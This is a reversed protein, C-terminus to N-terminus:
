ANQGKLADALAAIEEIAAALDEAGQAQEASATAAQRSANGAEEAASAIQRAAAATQSASSLILDAGRLVTGNAASLNGLEADIKGLSSLVALNNPVEVEGTMISLELDRKLAAVRDLIGRVSDKARDVNDASEGALTRIDGAVVAFGRGEDGARAAEVSGSVALMSTQVAILAIADVIKEIRRGIGELKGITLASTRTKAVAEVVGNMLKEVAERGSVLAAEIKKVRESAESAMEQAHKASKEIQGLAASAQHTASAQQHAGRNIQEVAAMIQSAASTMEQITASLEESTASIQEAASAGANGKRLREALKALNQAAVQGQELSKAQQQVASQAEGAAASQQEAASAVQEAGKQAEGAAREAELAATLVDESGEAIRQMDARRADLAEVVLAAAKAEAISTEATDKVSAVVGRVDNQIDNALGKVTQANRDSTEALARVEDAVVAFGRGHDGARAAEIAANLALLHTQDSIRSVAQTVEGIDKARHELESIIEVSADQRRANREIARASTTIQAAADALLAQAADTRRRSAEAESRTARLTDFIQKHDRRTSDTVRRRGRRRWQRDPGNLQGIRERGVIGSVLRKGTRRDGRGVRESLSDGSLENTSNRRRSGFPGAPRPPPPPPATNRLKGGTIKSTKVLAM